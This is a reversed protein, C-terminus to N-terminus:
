EILAKAIDSKTIIGVLSKDNYSSIVPLGSIRKDTMIKATDALDADSKVSIPKNMVDRAIMVHGIAVLDNTNDTNKGKGKGKGTHLKEGEVFATIPMLDKATIIGVIDGDDTTVIVRSIRNKVLIKLVTHLSNSPSTTFVQRTMFDDVRYKGKYNQLYLKVLDSKTFLKIEEEEKDEKDETVILSSIDNDLMLKACTKISTDSNVSILPARMAKSITIKDLPHNDNNDWYLYRSIGKETVMGVPKQNQIIIIRSINRKLMIDRVENMTKTSEVTIAKNYVDKASFTMM